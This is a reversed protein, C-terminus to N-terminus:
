QHIASYRRILEEEPFGVLEASNFLPDQFRHGNYIWLFNLTLVGPLFKARECRYSPRHHPFFSKLEGAFFSAGMRVSRGVCQLLLVHQM